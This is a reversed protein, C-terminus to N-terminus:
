GPQLVFGEEALRIAPALLAERSMTGYRIRARELGLVTGPVAVALWGRLSRGPIVEGKEDLYMGPTARLPARERFDLFVERGDKSRILMFGGGGVNGCCPQVVALAWGVAVAADIANGGAALVDRGVGAGLHQDAVVMGHKGVAPKPPSPATAAALLALALALLFFRLRGGGNM